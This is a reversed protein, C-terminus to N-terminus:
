WVLPILRATRSAYERYPEGLTELLFKDEKYLRLAYAMGTPITLFFIGLWSHALLPLGIVGLFSGLYLPHRIFRYPGREIVTHNERLDISFTYYYGLTWKGWNRFLISGACLLSGSAIVFWNPEVPQRLWCELNIALVGLAPLSGLSVTLWDGKPIDLQERRKPHSLGEVAIGMLTVGFVILAVINM